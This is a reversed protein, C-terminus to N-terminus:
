EGRGPRPSGKTLFWALSALWEKGVPRDLSGTGTDHAERIQNMM